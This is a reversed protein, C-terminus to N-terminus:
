DLYFTVTTVVRVQKEISRDDTGYEGSNLDRVEFGGQTASRISGVQIGANKAFEGAAIRANETAERLMGPKVANLGSFLYRPQSDTLLLGQAILEGLKQYAASVAKVDKTTVTVYSVIDYRKETLVGNGDRFENETVSTDGAAVATADFGNRALFAKIASANAEVEAYGAKLDANAVKFGIQWIAQDSTVMRESLGKVDATNVHERNVMTQGVFFGGGAIGGGLALAAAFLAAGSIQSM